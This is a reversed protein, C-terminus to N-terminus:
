YGQYDEHDWNVKSGLRSEFEMRLKEISEMDYSRGSQSNVQRTRIHPFYRRMERTWYNFSSPRFSCSEKYQEYMYAINGEIHMRYLKGTMLNLFVWQGISDLSELKNDLIAQTNPYDRIDVKSIDRHLLDYLLAEYGRQNEMQDYLKTFYERDKVKQDSVDLIFFRRDDMALPAVWHQNSAMMIRTYNPLIQVDKGKFEVARTDETIINKLISEHKKDGAYFAEDAFLILCDKLHANFAGVIHKADSVPLFHQGFLKGFINVMTGKGTGQGGRLVLTVGPRKSRNQVADAMWNMLYEYIDDEDKAIVESIHRYYLYCEGKREKHIKIPFGRWLNYHRNQEPPGSPDFFLGNYQRRQPSELWMKGEEMRITKQSYASLLEKPIKKGAKELHAILKQKEKKEVITDKKWFTRLVPKNKYRGEFHKDTSLTIEKRGFTPNFDENMVALKGQIMIVAHKRNLQHVELAEDLFIGELFILESLKQRDGGAKIWDSLDDKLKKAPLTLIRIRRAIKRLKTAIKLVGLIGPADNDPLFVLDADQFYEAYEDRWKGSGGAVTTSIFGLKMGNDADKAGEVFLIIREKGIARRVEPLNYPFMSVGKLSWNNENERMKFDKPEYRVEQHAPHGNLKRYQYIKVIRKKSPDQDGQKGTRQRSPPYLFAPKVDISDLVDRYDCGVHCKVSIKDDSQLTVELSPTQDKHAPCSAKARKGNVSINQLKSLLFNFREQGSEPNSDQSYLTMIFKIAQSRYNTHDLSSQPEFFL